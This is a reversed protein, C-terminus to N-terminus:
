ESLYKQSIIKIQKKNEHMANEILSILSYMLEPKRKYLKMLLENLTKKYSGDLWEVVTPFNFDDPDPFLEMYKKYTELELYLKTDINESFKEFLSNAANYLKSTPNTYSHVDAPDQSLNLVGLLDSKTNRIEKILKPKLYHDIAQSISRSYIDYKDGLGRMDYDDANTLSNTEHSIIKKILKEQFKILSMDIPSITEMSEFTFNYFNKFQMNRRNFTVNIYLPYAPVKSEKDLRPARKVKKNLFFNVTVKKEKAM